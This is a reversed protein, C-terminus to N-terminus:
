GIENCLVAEAIMLDCASGRRVGFFYEMYKEMVLLSSLLCQIKTCCKLAFTLCPAILLYLIFIKSINRKIKSM